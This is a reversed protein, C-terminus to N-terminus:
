RETDSYSVVAVAWAEVRLYPSSSLTYVNLSVCIYLVRSIM